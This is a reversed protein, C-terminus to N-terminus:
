CNAAIPVKVSLVVCSIVVEATQLEDSVEMAVMLSAAPELPNDVPTAAPDVLMM